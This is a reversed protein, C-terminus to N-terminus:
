RQEARRQGRANSAIHRGLREAAEQWNGSGALPRGFARVDAGLAPGSCGQGRQARANATGAQQASLVAAVARFDLERPDAPRAQQPDPAKADM